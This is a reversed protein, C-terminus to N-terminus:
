YLNMMRFLKATEHSTLMNNKFELDENNKNEIETRSLDNNNQNLIKNDNKNKINYNIKNEKSNIKDENVKKMLNTCFNEWFFLFFIVFIGLKLAKM